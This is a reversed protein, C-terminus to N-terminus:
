AIRVVLHSLKGGSEVAQEVPKGGAHPPLLTERALNGVLQARRERSNGGFGVQGEPALARGVLVTRREFRDPSVSLLERPGELGEDCGRTLFAPQRAPRGIGTGGSLGHDVRAASQGALVSHVDGELLRRSRNTDADIGVDGFPDELGEDFVGQAVAPALDLDGDVAVRVLDDVRDPVIAGSDGLRLRLEDEVRPDAATCRFM